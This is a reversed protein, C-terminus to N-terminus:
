HGLNWVGPMGIHQQCCELLTAFLYGDRRDGDEDIFEVLELGLMGPLRDLEYVQHEWAILHAREFQMSPWAFCRGTTSSAEHQASGQDVCILIDGPLHRRMRNYIDAPVYVRIWARPAEEQELEAESYAHPAHIRTGRADVVLFGCRTLDCLQNAMTQDVCSWHREGRAVTEDYALRAQESHRLCHDYWLGPLLM